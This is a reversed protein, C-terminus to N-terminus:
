MSVKYTTNMVVHYSSKGASSCVYPSKISIESLKKWQRKQLTRFIVSAETVETNNRSHVVRVVKDFPLNQRLTCPSHHVWLQVLLYNEFYFGYLAIKSTFPNAAVSQDAQV